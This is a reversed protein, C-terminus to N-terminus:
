KKRERMAQLTAGYIDNSIESPFPFSNEVGRTIAEKIASHGPFSDEIGDSIASAVLERFVKNQTLAAALEEADIKSM